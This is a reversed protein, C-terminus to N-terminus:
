EQEEQEKDSSTKTKRSIPSKRKYCQGKRRLLNEKGLCIITMMKGYTGYKKM